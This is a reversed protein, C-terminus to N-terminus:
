YHFAKYLEDALNLNNKLAYYTVEAVDDADCGKAIYIAGILVIPSPKVSMSLSGKSNINPIDTSAEM